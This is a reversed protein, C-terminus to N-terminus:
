IKKNKHRTKGGDCAELLGVLAGVENGVELAVLLFLGEKLSLRAHPNTTAQPQWSKALCSLFCSFTCGMPSIRTREGM